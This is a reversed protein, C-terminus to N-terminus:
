NDSDSPSSDSLGPGLGPDRTLMMEFGQFPSMMFVEVLDARIGNDINFVRSGDGYNLEPTPDSGSADITLLEAGPGNITLAGTIKLEGQTLLLKASGSENLILAFEIADPGAVLNIAFVAERLSTKGDNFDITDDLTDVIVVALLRRDELPEFRLPRRYMRNYRSQRAVNSRLDSDSPSNRRSM